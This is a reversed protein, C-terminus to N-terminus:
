PSYEGITNDTFVVKSVVLTAKVDEKKMQALRAQEPMFQNVSYESSDTITKGAPILHDPSVKIGYIRSGLLDAFQVTADILKIDKDSDNKLTLTIKYNYNSYEGRNLHADWSILQLPSKTEVAPPSSAANLLSSLPSAKELTTVRKELDSLRKEVSHDQGCASTCATVLASLVFLSTKM